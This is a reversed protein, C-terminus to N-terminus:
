INVALTKISEIDYRWSYLTRRNTRSVICFYVRGVKGEEGLSVAIRYIFSAKRKSDLYLEARINPLLM